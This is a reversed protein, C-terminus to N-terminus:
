VFLNEFFASPGEATAGDIMANLRREAGQHKLRERFEAVTPDLTNM